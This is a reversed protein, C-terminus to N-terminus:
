QKCPHGFSMEEFNRADQMQWRTQLHRGLNMVGVEEPEVGIRDDDIQKTTTEEYESVTEMVCLDFVPERGEHLCKRLGGCLLM